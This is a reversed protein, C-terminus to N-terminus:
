DISKRLSGVIKIYMIIHVYYHIYLRTISEQKILIDTGSPRELEGFNNMAILLTM